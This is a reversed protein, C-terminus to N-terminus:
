RSVIWLHADGTAVAVAASATKTVLTELELTYVDGAQVTVPMTFNADGVASAALTVGGAGDGPTSRVRPYDVSEIIKTKAGAGRQMWISFRVYSPNNDTTTPIVARGDAILLAEGTQSSTITATSLVVPAASWTGATAGSAVETASSRVGNNRWPSEAQTAGQETVPLFSGYVEGTFTLTGTGGQEGDFYAFVGVNGAANRIVMLVYDGTETENAFVQKRECVVGRYASPNSGPTAPFDEATAITSAEVTCNIPSTRRSLPVEGTQGREFSRGSLTVSDTFSVSGSFLLLGESHSFPSTTDLDFSSYHPTGPTDVSLNTATIGPFEHDVAEAGVGRVVHEWVCPADPRSLCQLGTQSTEPLLNEAAIPEYVSITTGSGWTVSAHTGSWDFTVSHEPTNAVEVRASAFALRTAVGGRISELVFPRLTRANAEAAAKDAPNITVGSANVLTLTVSPTTGDFDSFGWRVGAAEFSLNTFTATDINAFTRVLDQAANALADRIEALVAPDLQEDGVADNGIRDRVVGQPQIDLGAATRGIPNGTTSAVKVQVADGSIEIGEGPSVDLDNGNLVLGAGAGRAAGSSATTGLWRQFTAKDAARQVYDATAPWARTGGACDFNLEFTHDTSTTATWSPNAALVASRVAFGTTITPDNELAGTSEVAGVTIRYATISCAPLLTALTTTTAATTSILFRGRQTETGTVGTPCYDVLATVAGVLPVSGEFCGELADWAFDGTHPDVQGVMVVKQEHATDPEDLDFTDEPAGPAVLRCDGEHVQVDWTGDTLAPQTTCPTPLDLDNNLPEGAARRTNPVQLTRGQIDLADYPLSKRIKEQTTDELRTEPVRATSTSRAFDRIGMLQIDPNIACRTVNGCYLRGDLIQDGGAADFPPVQAGAAQVALALLVGLMTKM